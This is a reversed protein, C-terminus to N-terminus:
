KQEEHKFYQAADAGIDIAWNFTENINYVESITIFEGTIQLQRVDVFDRIIKAIIPELIVDEGMVEIVRKFEQEADFGLTRVRALAKNLEDNKYPNLEKEYDRKLADRLVPLAKEGDKSFKGKIM